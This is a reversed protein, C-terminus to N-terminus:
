GGDTRAPWGPRELREEVPTRLLSVAIILSLLVLAAGPVVNVHSVPTLLSIGVLLTVIALWRPLILSTRLAVAATALAFVGLGVGTATSGLIQSTEFLSQALADSLEGDRARLAAVMNITEAGLGAAMGLLAGGFATTALVDDGEADALVRRVAAAFPVFAAIGLLSLSAGVVIRDSTDRYFDVVEAVPTGDEPMDLGWIASGAGFLLVVAIGSLGAYRHANRSRAHV